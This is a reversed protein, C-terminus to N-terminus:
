QLYHETPGAHKRLMVAVQRGGCCSVALQGDPGSKRPATGSFAYYAQLYWFSFKTSTTM